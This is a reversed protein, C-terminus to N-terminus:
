GTIGASQVRVTPGLIYLQNKMREDACLVPADRRSFDHYFVTPTGDGGGRRKNCEYEVRRCKGLVVLGAPDHFNFRYQAQPEHGHFKRYLRPLASKM